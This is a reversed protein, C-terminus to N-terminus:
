WCMHVFFHTSCFWAFRSWTFKTLVEIKPWDTAMGPGHNNKWWRLDEQENISMLTDHLESYVAKVSICCISILRTNVCCNTCAVLVCALPQEGRTTPSTWIDTSPSFPRSWFASGRERRRRRSNLYPRWRRWTALRTPRWMRWCKRMDTELRSTLDSSIMKHHFASYVRCSSGRSNRKLLRGLIYLDDPAKQQEWAPRWLCLTSYCYCIEM